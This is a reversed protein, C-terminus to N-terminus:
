ETQGKQKSATEPEVALSKSKPELLVSKSAPGKVQAASDPKTTTSHRHPASIGSKAIPGKVASGSGTALARSARAPQNAVSKSTPGIVKQFSAPAVLESARTPALISAKVVPGKLTGATESALISTGIKPASLLGKSLGGVKTSTAPRVLLAIRKPTDLLSKEGVPDSWQIQLTIQNSTAPTDAHDFGKFSRTNEQQASFRTLQIAFPDGEAYGVADLYPQMLESFNPTTYEVGATFPPTVWIGFVSPHASPLTIVELDTPYHQDDLGAGEGFTMANGLTYGGQVAGPLKFTTEVYDVGNIAWDGRLVVVFKEALSFVYQDGGSFVFTESVGPPGVPILSVDRIDSTALLNGPFGSGDQDYVELWINGTPAGIKNLIIDIDALTGALEIEMSQGLQAYRAPVSHKRIEWRHNGGTGINSTTLETSASNVTVRFDGPNVGNDIDKWQAPSNPVADWFGDKAIVEILTTVPGALDAAATGRLM